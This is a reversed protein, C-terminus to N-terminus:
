KKSCSFIDDFVYSNWHFTNGDFTSLGFISREQEKEAMPEHLVGGSKQANIEM